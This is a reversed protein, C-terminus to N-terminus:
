LSKWRDQPVNKGNLYCVFCRHGVSEVKALKSRPKTFKGLVGTTRRDPVSAQTGRLAQLGLGVEQLM